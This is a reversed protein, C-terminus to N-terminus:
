DTKSLTQSPTEGFMARYDTAFHGMHWFGWDTAIDTIRTDRKARRLLTRRAGDLRIRKLYDMPSFGTVAVFANILSRSRLGSVRSLDLLTADVHDRMYEECRRVAALRRNLCKSREIAISDPREFASALLPVITGHISRIPIGAPLLPRNRERGMSFIQNMTSRLGGAVFSDHSQRSSRVGQLLAIADPADRFAQHLAAEDISVSYFTAPGSTRLDITTRTSGIDDKKFPSGFWRVAQTENANIGILATGPRVAAESKFGVNYARMSLVLPGADVTAHCVEFQGAELQSWRISELVYRKREESREMSSSRAVEM